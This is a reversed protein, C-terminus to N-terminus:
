LTLWESVHWRSLLATSGAVGHVGSRVAWMGDPDYRLGQSRRNLMRDVHCASVHRVPRVLVGRSCGRNRLPTAVRGGGPLGGEQEAFRTAGARQILLKRRATAKPAAQSGGRMRSVPPPPPMSIHLRGAHGHRRRALGHHLALRRSGAPVAERGGRGARQMARVPGRM